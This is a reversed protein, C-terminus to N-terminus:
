SYLKSIAQLFQPFFSKHVCFLDTQFHGYKSKVDQMFSCLGEFDNPKNRIRGDFAVRGTSLNIEKYDLMGIKDPHFEDVLPTLLYETDFIFYGYDHLAEIVDLDGNFEMHIMSVGLNEILKKAGNLVAMEGGQVDVKMLLVPAKIYEDLTCVDIDFLKDAQSNSEKSKPVLYGVSSYGALRNWKDESGKVVSSVFFIGEGSFDSVAKKVLTIKEYAKLNEEFHPLNGEFPEFAVVSCNSNADLMRRSSFGAAAGVDLCIGGDFVKVLEYPILESVAPLCGLLENVEKNM